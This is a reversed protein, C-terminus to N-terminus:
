TSPDSYLHSSSEHRMISLSLAIADECETRRKNWQLLGDLNQNCQQSGMEMLWIEQIRFFMPIQLM